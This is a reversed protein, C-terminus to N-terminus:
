RLVTDDDESSSCNSASSIGKDCTSAQWQAKQQERKKAQGENDWRQDWVKQVVEEMWEVIEKDKEGDTGAPWGLRAQVADRPRGPAGARRNRCQWMVHDQTPVLSRCGEWCCKPAKWHRSAIPSKFAGMM